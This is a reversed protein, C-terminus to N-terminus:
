TMAVALCAKGVTLAALGYMGPNAAAYRIAVRFLYIVGHISHKVWGQCPEAIRSIVV